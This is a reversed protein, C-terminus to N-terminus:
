QGLLRDLVDLRAKAQKHGPNIKLVQKYTQAAQQTRGLKERALALKMLTDVNNPELARATDFAHEAKELRGTMAYVKGLNLWIVATRPSISKAKIFASEAEDFRGQGALTYGLKNYAYYSRPACQTMATYLTEEDKWIRNQAPTRMGWFVGIIGCVAAMIVARGSPNRAAKDAMATVIYVLLIILGASALFMFRDACFTGIPVIHLFPMITIGSWAMAFAALPARRWAYIFIAFAAPIGIITGWVAPETFSHALRFSTFDPCLGSPYLFQGLYHPILKIVSPIVTGPAWGYILRAQGVVGIYYFRVMLFVVSLIFLPVRRLAYKWSVPVRTIILDAAVVLAPFVVALEKSLLALAFLLVGPITWRAATGGRDKMFCLLAAFILSGSLLDEMGSIWAVPEAHLPHVAFLLAAALAPWVDKFLGFAVWYFLLCCITFLAVNFGHYAAPNLGFGAHVLSNAFVGFPRYLDCQTTTFFAKINLPSRIEPAFHLMLFDDWVFKFGSTELFMGIATLCVFVCAYIHFRNAPLPKSGNQTPDFDMSHMM